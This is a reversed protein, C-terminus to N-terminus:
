APWKHGACIGELHAMKAPWFHGEEFLFAQMDQM